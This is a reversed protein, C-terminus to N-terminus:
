LELKDGPEGIDLELGLFARAEDPDGGDSVLVADFVQLGLDPLEAAVVPQKVRSPGEISGESVEHM